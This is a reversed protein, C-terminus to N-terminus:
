ARVEQVDFGTQLFLRKMAEHLESVVIRKFSSDEGDFRHPWTYMKLLTEEEPPLRYAIEIETLQKNKKMIVPPLTGCRKLIETTLYVHKRRENIWAPLDSMLIKGDQITALFYQKRGNGDGDYRVMSIGSTWDAKKTWYPSYPPKMKLFSYAETGRTMEVWQAGKVLSDLLLGMEPHSFHFSDDESVDGEQILYPGIGSMYCDVTAYIGKVFSVGSVTHCIYKSPTVRNRKHYMQGSELYIEYIREVMDAVHDGYDTESVIAPYILCYAKMIEACRQKIHQISVSEGEPCDWLAALTMRGCVSYVVRRMWRSVDEEPDQPTNIDRSIDKLELLTIDM